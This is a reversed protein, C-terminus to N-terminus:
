KASIPASMKQLDLGKRRAMTMVYITIVAGSLFPLMSIIPLFAELGVGGALIALNKWIRKPEGFYILVVILLGFLISFIFALIQGVVPILNIVLDLIDKLAAFGIAAFFPIDASFSVAPQQMNEKPFGSIPHVAPTNQQRAQALNDRYNNQLQDVTIDTM